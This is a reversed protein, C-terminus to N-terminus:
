ARKRKMVRLSLETKEEELEDVMGMKLAENELQLRTMENWREQRCLRAGKNYYLAETLRLFLKKTNKKTSTLAVCTIHSEDIIQTGFLAQLTSHPLLRFAM